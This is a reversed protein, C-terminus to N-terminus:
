PATARMGARHIPALAERRTVSRVPRGNESAHRDFEEGVLLYRGVPPEASRRRPGLQLAGKEQVVLVPLQDPPAPALM